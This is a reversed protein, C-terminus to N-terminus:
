DFSFNQLSASFQKKKGKFHLLQVPLYHLGQAFGMQTRFDKQERSVEVVSTKYSQDDFEFSDNALYNFERTMVGFTELIQYQLPKRGVSVDLMLQLQVALGDLIAADYALVQEGEKFDAYITKQAASFVIKETYDAGTGQRYHQYEIPIIRGQRLYFRSSVQRKDSFMLFRMSSAFSFRYENAAVHELQYRGYGMHLWKYYLDFNATFPRLPEAVLSGLPLLLFVLLCYRLAISSCALM